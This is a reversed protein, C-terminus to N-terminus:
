ISIVFIKEHTTRNGDTLEVRGFGRWAQGSAGRLQVSGGLGTNLGFAQLRVYDKNGSEM